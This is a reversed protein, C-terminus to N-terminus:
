IGLFFESANAMTLRIKKLDKKKGYREIQGM